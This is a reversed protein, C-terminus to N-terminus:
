RNARALRRAHVGVKALSTLKCVETGKMRSWWVKMGCKCDKSEFTITLNRTFSRIKVDM